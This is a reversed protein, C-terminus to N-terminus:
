AGNVRAEHRRVKQMVAAETIGYVDAIDKFTVPPELARAELYLATREGEVKALASEAKTLRTKNAAMRRLVAAQESAM